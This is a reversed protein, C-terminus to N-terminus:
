VNKRRRGEIIWYVPLGLLILFLGIGSRGPNSRITEIILWGSVVLFVIPVVPYGWTRYPREADPERRRFIFISAAVLLYFMTLAFIAYDTLTDYEGSLAIV